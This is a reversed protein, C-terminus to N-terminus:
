ADDEPSPTQERALWANWHDWEPADPALPAESELESAPLVPPRQRWAGVIVAPVITSLGLVLGVPHAGAQVSLHIAVALFAFRLGFGLAWLRGISGDGFLAIRSGRLLVRFNAAEIAARLALSAAFLPSAIAFSAAVAGATVGLNWRELSDMAM